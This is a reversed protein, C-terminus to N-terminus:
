PQPSTLPTLTGATQGLAEGVRMLLLDPQFPKELLTVGPPLVGGRGIMDATYGSIFLVPLERDTRRRLEAALDIGSLGPMIVDTVLMDISGTQQAAAALAKMGDPAEIVHYGSSRLLCSTFRRVHEQDEVVLITGSGRPNEVPQGPSLSDPKAPMSADTHRPFYLEFTAGRGAESRVWIGGGSQRVIGYVTSLGLGTGETRGKTTFFPEFIQQQIDPPIGAGTDSVELVVYPGPALGPHTAAFEPGAERQSTRLTLRGGKPMADRANASLNMLVQNLQVPDALIPTPYLDLDTLVRIDEGVLRTLMQCAERVVDNLDLPKPQLVQKRSFALLQRTLAAAQLGAQHIQGTQAYLRDSPDLRNLMLKSYGNIVTLLNNFDHAVGGALRGISELKQNQRLQEELQRYATIDQVIASASGTEAGPAGIPSVTVAIHVSEGNQRAGMTERRGMERGTRLATMAREADGEAGPAFLTALPQGTIEALSYGFIERAGRNWTLIFGDRDVGLIAESSSEVLCALFDRSREARRRNRQAEQETLAREVAHPLRALRDKLIYDTAGQKVCEVASDDSMTGSVFILPVDAREELLAELAGSGSWGPLGHDALVIDYPRAHLANLFEAQTSVVDATVAFGGAELQRTYLRADLPNDEVYLARLSRTAPKM